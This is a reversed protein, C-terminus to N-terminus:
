VPARAHHRRAAAAPTKRNPTKRAGVPAQVSRAALQTEYWGALSGAVLWTIPTLASNPILDVMNAALILALGATARDIELSKSRFALVLLPVALLGFETLYGLWGYQGITIVWRGDPVSVQEGDKFVGWRGQGGWGAFPKLSARDLLLDENKLRTELSEARDRDLSNAFSVIQRTPIFESGRLVPYLLIIAALFGVGLIQIRPTFFIALPIFMAAIAIAGFSKAMILCLIMFPLLLYIKRRQAASKAARCGVAVAVAAMTLFIGVRLGHQQFLIPRYGGQRLHQRWEHAFFGFIKRNLTPSMRVEYMALIAYIVGGFILAGILIQHGEVTNVYKRALLFPLLMVLTTVVARGSDYLAFGALVRGGQIVPEANTLATIMPGLIALIILANVILRGKSRAKNPHRRQTESTVGNANSDQLVNSVQQRRRLVAERRAQRKAEIGVLILACIAPVFVKDIFPVGPIPLDIVPRVPLFLYGGLITWILGRVLGLRRFLLIAVLPYAFLAVYALTNPM